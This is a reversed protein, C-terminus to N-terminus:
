RLIAQCIVIRGTQPYDYRHKGLWIYELTDCINQLATSNGLPAEMWETLKVNYYLLGSTM